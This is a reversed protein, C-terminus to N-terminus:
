KSIDQRHYFRGKAVTQRNTGGADQSQIDFWYEGPDFDMDTPGPTFSAIGAAADVIGGTLQVLNASADSPNESPDVTLTLEKGTIDIPLLTRKDRMTVKIPITDNRYYTIETM